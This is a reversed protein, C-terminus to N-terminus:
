PYAGLHVDEGGRCADHRRHIWRQDAQHSEDGADTELGSNETCIEEEAILAKTDTYVGPVVLQLYALDGPMARPQNRGIDMETEVPGKLVVIRDEPPVALKTSDVYMMDMKHAM